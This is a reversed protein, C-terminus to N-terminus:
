KLKMLAAAHRPLLTAASVPKASWFDRGSKLAWQRPYRRWNILAQWGGDPRELRWYESPLAFPRPAPIENVSKLAPRWFRNVADLIKKAEPVLRAMDGGIECMGGSMLALTAWLRNENESMAPCWGISDPDALLCDGRYFLVAASLWTAATLVVDWTGDGLDEGCRSADAFRGLFPNGANTTCCTLLFGGVPVLARIDALFANRWEIATRTRDHFQLEPIEFAPTWFDLKLGQYGWQNFITDWARRTYDRVEPISYDLYATPDAFQRQGSIRMKWEPHKKVLPGDVTVAPTCWIAPKLGAKRIDAALSQMGKPFRSPEHPTKLAPDFIDIGSYHFAFVGRQRHLRRPKIRQYGDDIMMWRVKNNMKQLARANSRIYAEDIDGHGKPRVNYNWSGWVIEERLASTRGPFDIRKRLLGYYADILEPISGRGALIVWCETEFKGGAELPIAPIGSFYDRAALRISRGSASIKWAPKCRQQTLTAMLVAGREPHMFFIGPFPTDESIGFEGEIGPLPAFLGGTYYSFGGFYKESKFLESHMVMWGSGALDLMGSAMEIESILVKRGSLNELTQWIELAGDSIRKFHLTHLLGLHSKPKLLAESRGRDTQMGIRCNELAWGASACFNWNKGGCGPRIDISDTQNM